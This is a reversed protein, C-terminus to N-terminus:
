RGPRPVLGSELGDLWAVMDGRLAPPGLIEAHDLFGLVFSRFAGVNTVGVRFLEAGDPRREVVAGQGLADEAWRAQEADVLLTAEIHEDEGVRWAPPPAAEISPPRDFAGPPGEVTVSGPIRDLRFLREGGRHHDLGALYWLGRRYSMRWPDVLRAEGRYSFRIRRREAVAGFVVAVVDGGPLDALGPGGGLTPDAEDSAAGGLKRLARTTAARGWAGEVQVAASALRLAALEHEDL